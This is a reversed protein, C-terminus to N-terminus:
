ADVDAAGELRSLNHPEKHDTSKGGMDNRKGGRGRHDM